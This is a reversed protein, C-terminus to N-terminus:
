EPAVKVKAVLKKCKVCEITLAGTRKDYKVSSGAHLHCAAHLYLVTHDHGCNPTGCGMGDLQKRSLAM